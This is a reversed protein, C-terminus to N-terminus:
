LGYHAATNFFGRWRTIKGGTVTFVHVWESEFTHRTDRATSKVWGLVTVNEGAEIFEQPEFVATEAARELAAFLRGGGPPTAATRRLAFDGSIHGAAGMRRMVRRRLLSALFQVLRQLNAASTFPM